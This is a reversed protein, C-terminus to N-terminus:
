VLERVKDEAITAVIKKRNPTGRALSEALHLAQKAKIKGPMPPENPDVVAEVVVPGPTALAEAVVEGCKAPDTVTFGRGGCARAFAAFDIPHLECGFEPNGLFVMQEWKIQGLSNNKIIFIKIPLQYKVATAFEGMLMTFGGDGVFAICQRDPFAIQAAIAYPLGNAMTALTGSLSHM